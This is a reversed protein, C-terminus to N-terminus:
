RRKMKKLKNMLRSKATTTKRKKKKQAKEKKDAENVMKLSTTALRLRIKPKKSDNDDFDVEIKKGDDKLDFSDGGEKVVLDRLVKLLEHPSKVGAMIAAEVRNVAETEGGACDQNGSRSGGIAGSRGNLWEALRKVLVVCGQREVETVVGRRFLHAYHAAAYWHLERYSPFRFQQPLKTRDELDSISLQHGLAFMHLYNGGFVLSDQPTYVAHIWGAPLFFTNGARFEIRTCEGPVLDPFFIESQRESQVWNEYAKLNKETPPIMFFIKRGRVIHYWVSSGGFDVHFDTYCGQVSMLCYKQVKPYDKTKMRARPWGSYMFSIERVISPPHVEDALKTNSIELSIVNLIKKRKNPPLSYYKSFNGLTSSSQSQSTVEIVEIPYSPSLYKEAIDSVTVSRSPVTIGLGKKSLVLFPPFSNDAHSSLWTRTLSTGDPLIPFVPSEPGDNALPISSILNQFARSTFLPVGGNLESYSLVNTM